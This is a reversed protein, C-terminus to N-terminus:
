EDRYETDTDEGGQFYNSMDSYIDDFGFMDKSSVPSIKTIIDSEKFANIINLFYDKVMEGKEDLFGGYLLDPDDEWSKIKDVVEDGILDIKNLVFLMPIYFRSYVSGFLMKESIFGSPTQAVVSDAIFALMGKKGALREVLMPSSPRFSFLEIQGPTDFIVYYDEYLDLKSRIKEANDILLDSAVVQAGNPGLSYESMIDNLSIFERIDIEPEYPLYEAGPDLNVIISDYDSRTLWEKFAGCFTSKGTGAPGTVFLSGIM